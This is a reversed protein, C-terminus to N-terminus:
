NEYEVNYKEKVLYPDIIGLIALIEFDLLVKTQEINLNFHEMVKKELLSLVYTQFTLGFTKYIDNYFEQQKLFHRVNSTLDKILVDKNSDLFDIIDFFLEMDKHDIDLEVVGYKDNKKM